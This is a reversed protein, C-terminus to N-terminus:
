SEQVFTLCKRSIKDWYGIKWLELQSDYAKLMSQTKFDRLSITEADDYGLNILAEDAIHQLQVWAAIQRDNPNSSKKLAEVCNDVLSSYPFM